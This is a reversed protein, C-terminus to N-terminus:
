QASRLIKFQPKLSELGMFARFKWIPVMEVVRMPGYFMYNKFFVFEKSKM